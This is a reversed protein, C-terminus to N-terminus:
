TSRKRPGTAMPLILHDAIKYVGLDIKKVHGADELLRLTASIRPQSSNLWRALASGTCRWYGAQDSSHIMILLVRLALYPLDGSRAIALMQADHVRTWTRGHAGFLLEPHDKASLPVPSGEM